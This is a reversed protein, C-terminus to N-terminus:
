FVALDAFIRKEFIGRSPCTNMSSSVVGYGNRVEVGANGSMNITVRTSNEMERLIITANIRLGTFKAQYLGVNGTPQGCSVLRQDLEAGDGQFAPSQFFSRSVTGSGTLKIIGDIKDTEEIPFSNVASWELLYGWVEGFPKDVEISKEFELYEINKVGASSCSLLSVLILSLLLFRV